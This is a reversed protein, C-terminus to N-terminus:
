KRRYNGEKTPQGANHHVRVFTPHNRGELIWKFAGVKVHLGVVILPQTDNGVLEDKDHLVDPQLRKRPGYKPVIRKTTQQGSKRDRAGGNGIEAILLGFCRKVQKAMRGKGQRPKCHNREDKRGQEIHGSEQFKTLSSIWAVFAQDTDDLRQGRRNQNTGATGDFSQEGFRSEILPNM